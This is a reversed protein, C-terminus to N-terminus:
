ALWVERQAPSLAQYKASLDKMFDGLNLGGDGKTFQERFFVHWAHQPLKAPPSLAREKLEKIGATKKQKARRLKGKETLRRRSRSKTKRKPKARSKRKRALARPEATVTADSRTKAKGASAAKKRTSPGAASTETRAAPKKRPARTTRGTHAKPRSVPQDAFTRRCLPTLFLGTSGIGGRLRALAIGISGSVRELNSSLLEHRYSGLSNLRWQSCRGLAHSSRFIM